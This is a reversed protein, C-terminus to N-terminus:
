FKLRSEISSLTNGSIVGSTRRVKPRFSPSMRRTMFYRSMLYLRVPEFDLNLFTLKAPSSVLPSSSVLPEAPPKNEPGPPVNFFLVRLPRGAGVTWVFSTTSAFANSSFLSVLLGGGSARAVGSVDAGGLSFTWLPNSSSAQPTLFGAWAM